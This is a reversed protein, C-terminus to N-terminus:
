ERTDLSLCAPVENAKWWMVDRPHHTQFLISGATVVNGKNMDDEYYESLYSLLRGVATTTIDHEDDNILPPRHASTKV